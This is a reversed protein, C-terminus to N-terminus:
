SLHLRKQIKQKAGECVLRITKRTGPRQPGSNCWYTGSKVTEELIKFEQDAISGKTAAMLTFASVSILVSLCLIQGSAATAMTGAVGVVACSSAVFANTWFDKERIIKDLENGGCKESKNMDKQTILIEAQDTRLQAIRETLFSQIESSNRSDELLAGIEIIKQSIDKMSVTLKGIVDRAEIIQHPEFLINQAEQRTIEVNKTISAYFTRFEDRLKQERQEQTMEVPLEKTAAVHSM